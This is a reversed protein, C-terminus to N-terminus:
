QIGREQSEERALKDLDAKGFELRTAVGEINWSANFELVYTKKKSDFSIREPLGYFGFGPLPIPIYPQDAYSTYDWWVAPPPVEARECEEWTPSRGLIARETSVSDVRWWRKQEVSCVHMSPPAEAVAPHSGHSVFVYNDDAYHLTMHHGPVPVPKVDHRSWTRGDLDYELIGVGNSGMWLSGGSKALGRLDNPLYRDGTRKFWGASVALDFLRYLVAEKTQTNVAVLGDPMTVDCFTVNGAIVKTGCCREKVREHSLALPQGEYHVGAALMGMPSESVLVSTPPAAIEASAGSSSLWLLACCAAALQVHVRIM